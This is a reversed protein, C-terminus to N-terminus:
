SKWGATIKSILCFFGNKKKYDFSLFSIAWVHDHHLLVYDIIFLIFWDRQNGQVCNLHLKNRWASLTCGILHVGLLRIVIGINHLNAITLSLPYLFNRDCPFAVKRVIAFQFVLTFFWCASIKNPLLCKSM